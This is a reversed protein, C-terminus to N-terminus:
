YNCIIKVTYTRTYSSNEATVKIQITMTEGKAFDLNSITYYGDSDRDLQIYPTSSSTGIKYEISSVSDETPLMTLKAGAAATPYVTYSTTTTATDIISYVDPDAILRMEKLTSTVSSSTTSFSQSKTYTLGNYVLTARITYSTGAKLDSLEFRRAENAKTTINSVLTTTKGGGSYTVTLKGEVDSQVSFVASTSSVDNETDVAINLPNSDETTFYSSFSGVNSGDEYELTGSVVVVYYKTNLELDNYPQITVTKGDNSVSATFDVKSGSTSGRRLEIATSEVYSPKLTTYGSRYVPSGFTVTIPSGASVNVAKDEPSVVIDTEVTKGTSFKSVFRGNSSGNENVLTGKNVVVYYTTDDALAVSPKITITRKNSSITATYALSEGTTSDKHLEVVSNRIYSATLTVGVDEYIAEDFSLTISTTKSVSTRGNTPSVSPTLTTSTGTTFYSTVKPNTAGDSNKLKSSAVIVYYTTNTALDEDPRITITKKDSSISATYSVLAGSTSGRRLEVVSGEVYSTTLTNGSSNFLVDHFTLTIASSIAVGTSANSPSVTPSLTTSASKTGFYSTYETNRQGASNKLTGGKVVVYYTTGTALESDPTVTVTRGSVYASFNVKTGSSSGRRLEVVSNEIYSNSVSNGSSNYIAEDFVLSITASPDVSGAGKSPVVTPQLIGNQDKDANNTIKGPQTEYTIGNVNEVATSITGEGYFTTLGNMTATGVSVGKALSITTGAAAKDVTLATITGKQIVTNTKSTLNMAAIKGSSHNIVTSSQVTLKDFTGSLKVTSSALSSGTLTVNQFGDGTLSSESLTVGNKVVTEKVSSNGTAYIAADEKSAALYNVNTDYLTVMSGGNVTLAGLVRSNRLTVAGSGTDDTVTVNNAYLTNSRTVASSISVTSDSVVNEGKLLLYIVQAVQARTMKANPNFKNNGDGKMYGKTYIIDVGDRAWDGISSSDAFVKSSSVSAPLTVVRSLMLASEQRTITQNPRFTGDTYGAIYGASVAKQLESYCWDSSRIDSFSISVTNSLGLAQNLMKSFESRSVPNDPRFTGDQYGSIYGANVGSRIAEEAWHGKIDSLAAATSQVTVLGCVLVLTLCFSVIRKIGVRKKM